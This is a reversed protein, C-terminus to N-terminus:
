MYMRCTGVRPENEGKFQPYLDLNSITTRETKRDIVITRSNIVKKGNLIGVSPYTAIIADDRNYVVRYEYLGDQTFKDNMLLFKVEVTEGDTYSPYQCVWDEYPLYSFLILSIFM